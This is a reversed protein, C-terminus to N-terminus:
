FFQEYAVKNCQIVYKKHPQLNKQPTTQHTWTDTHGHTRTYQTSRTHVSRDATHVIIQTMGLGGEVARGGGVTQRIHRTMHQEINMTQVYM